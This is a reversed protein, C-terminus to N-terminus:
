SPTQSGLCTSRQRQTSSDASTLFPTWRIRCPPHPPTPRPPAPHPPPRHAAETCQPCGWGHGAGCMFLPNRLCDCEGGPTRWSPPFFGWGGVQLQEENDLPDEGGGGGAAALTRVSDLRSAVYARTIRPVFTDLQSPADGKLYPVSSVLRSWLGLLYYVSGSAWQWSNLSSMTFDAVLQIWDAYGELGVLESLQYNTKLRGLLRCFEHYNAHHALGM